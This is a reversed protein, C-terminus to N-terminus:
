DRHRDIVFEGLSNLITRNITSKCMGSGGCLNMCVGSNNDQFILQNRMKKAHNLILMYPLLQHKEDTTLDRIGEEYKRKQEHETLFKIQHPKFVKKAAVQKWYNKLPFQKKFRDMDEKSHKSPKNYQEIQDWSPNLLPRFLVTKGEFLVQM